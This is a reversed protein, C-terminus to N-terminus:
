EQSSEPSSELSALAWKGDVVMLVKGEDGEGIEPLEAAMASKLATLVDALAYEKGDILVSAVPPNDRGENKRTMPDISLGLLTLIDTYSNDKGRVNGPISAIYEKINM